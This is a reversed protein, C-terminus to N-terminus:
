KPSTSPSSTMRPIPLLPPLTRAFLKSFPHQIMQPLPITSRRQLLLTEYWENATPNLPLTPLTNNNNGGQLFWYLQQPNLNSNFM